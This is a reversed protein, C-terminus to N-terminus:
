TSIHRTEGFYVFLCQCLRSILAGHAFQCLKGIFFVINIEVNCEKNKVLYFIQRPYKYFIYM